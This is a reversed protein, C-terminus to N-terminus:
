ILSLDESLTQLLQFIPFTMPQDRSNGEGQGKSIRHALIKRYINKYKNASSRIKFNKEKEIKVLCLLLKSVRVEVNEALTTMQELTAAIVHISSFATRTDLCCVLAKLLCEEESSVASYLNSFDLSLVAFTTENGQVHQSFYRQALIYHKFAAALKDRTKVEDRQCTWVKSFYLALQYHAAAAQHSAHATGLSEYIKCSREMPEVIAKEVGPTLRLAQIMLPEPSSSSLASQRRRVGLVLLTAALEESVMDWCTPDVDRQGMADHASVLHDVADQLYSESNDESRAGPLVVNTNARIKSCQCLNCRLLALNRLDNCETFRALGEMFWFQASALMIASVHSMGFSKHRVMGVKDRPPSFQPLLVARSESLLIKGIENCADGLRQRILPATVVPGDGDVSILNSDAASYKRCNKAADIVEEETTCHEALFVSSDIAHSYCVCAAVLIQRAERKIQSKQDLISKSMLIADHCGEQQLVSAEIQEFDQPLIVVGSLSDLSIQGHSSETTTKFKWRRSGQTSAAKGFFVKRISSCSVNVERFLGILDAGCTHGRDRWLDDAAFTRAFHGCYEWLWAYQHLISRAYLNFGSYIKESTIDLSQLLSTADSLMRAATRLSQILNSSFYNKVHHDALRLCVNVIKHHIGYLQTSLAEVEMSSKDKKAKLLPTTLQQIGNM